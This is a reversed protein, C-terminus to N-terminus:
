SPTRQGAAPTPAAHEPSPFDKAKIKVMRGDPNHWVIGEYPRAHLWERLGDYDRPATAFDQRISTISWGHPMLVHDAYGDPNRNIKPGLLEYTGATEVATNKVAEAHVKAFASQAVPEWGVTKGTEEDTSITVYGPPPTKGPKVERRAWWQGAPDLMVCTGDYKRTAEGEGNIVWECGPSIEPLVFAPRASFDRVFLTPIKEM